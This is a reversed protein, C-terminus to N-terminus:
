AESLEKEDAESNTTEEATEAEAANDTKEDGGVAKDKEDDKEEAVRETIDQRDEAWDDTVRNLKGVESNISGELSAIGQELKALNRNKFHHDLEYGVKVKLTVDLGVQKLGTDNEIDQRLQEAEASMNAKTQKYRQIGDFSVALKVMGETDERVLAAEEDEPLINNEKNAKEQEQARKEQEQQRRQVEQEAALKEREARAKHIQEIQSSLTDIKAEKIESDMDTDSVQQIMKQLEAIRKDEVERLKQERERERLKDQIDSKDRKVVSSFNVNLAAASIQM